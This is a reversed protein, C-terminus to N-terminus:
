PRPLAQWDPSFGQSRRPARVIRRIRGGAAPVRYIGAGAFLISRGDPSWAPEDYYGGRGATLNRPRTGDVQVRVIEGGRAYVLARGDPAWDLGELECRDVNASSCRFSRVVAGGSGDPKVRRIEAVAGLVEEEDPGVVRSTEATSVYAIEGTSSWAPLNNQRRVVMDGQRTRSARALRRPNGGAVRIIRVEDLFDSGVQVTYALRGAGPAWTPGAGRVIRRRRTGATTAVMVANNDCNRTYAIRRGGPAFRAGYPQCGGSFRVVTRRDNGDAEATYVTNNFFLFDGSSERGDAIGFM